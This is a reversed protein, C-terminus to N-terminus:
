LRELYDVAMAKINRAFGDALTLADQQMVPLTINEEGSLCPKFTFSTYPSESPAFGLSIEWLSNLKKKMFLNHAYEGILRPYIASTTFFWLQPPRILGRIEHEHGECSWGPHCSRLAYFEFVLPAIGPEIPFREPDSSM